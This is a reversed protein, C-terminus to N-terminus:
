QETMKYIDIAENEVVHVSFSLVEEARSFFGKQANLNQILLSLGIFKGKM